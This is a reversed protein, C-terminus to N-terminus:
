KSKEFDEAVELLKQKIIPSLHQMLLEINAKKLEENSPKEVYVEDKSFDSVFSEPVRWHEDEDIGSEILREFLHAAWEAVRKEQISYTKVQLNQGLYTM